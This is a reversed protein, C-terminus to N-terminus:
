RWTDYEAPTMPRLRLGDAEPQPTGFPFAMNTSAVQFRVDDVFAEQSADGTTWWAELGGARPAVHTRVLERVVPAHAPDDLRVDRVVADGDDYTLWVHGVRDAGAAVWLLDHGDTAPGDPLARKLAATADAAGVRGPAGAQVLGVFREQLGTFWGDFEDSGIPTLSLERPSAM